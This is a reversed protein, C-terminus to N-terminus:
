WSGRRPKPDSESFDAIVNSPHRGGAVEKLFRMYAAGNANGGFLWRALPGVFKAYALGRPNKGFTREVLPGYKRLVEKEDM